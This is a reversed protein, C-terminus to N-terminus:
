ILNLNILGQLTGAVTKFAVNTKQIQRDLLEPSPSAATTAAAGVVLSAITFWPTAFLHGRAALNLYKGRQLLLLLQEQLM